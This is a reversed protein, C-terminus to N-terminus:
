PVETPHRDTATGCCLALYANEHSGGDVRAGRLEAEGCLDPAAGEPERHAERGSPFPGVIAGKVVTSRPAM